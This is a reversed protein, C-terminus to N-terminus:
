EDEDEDGFIDFPSTTFSGRGFEIDAPNLWRTIMPLCAAVASIVWTQWAGFNISGSSVWDAVALTLIIATFARATSALPSTAYWEQFSRM